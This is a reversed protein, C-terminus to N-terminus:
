AGYARYLRIFRGAQPPPVSRRGDWALEALAVHRPTGVSAAFSRVQLASPLSLRQIPSESKFVVAKSLCRRTWPTAGEFRAIGLREPLHEDDYWANFEEEMPAPPETMTLLLGRHSM